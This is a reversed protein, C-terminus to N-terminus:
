DAGYPHWGHQRWRGDPRAARVDRLHAGLFSAELESNRAGNFEYLRDRHAGDRAVEDWGTVTYVARIIDNSIVFVPLNPVARSREGARWAHRAAEYREAETSDADAAGHSVVVACPRPLPPAPRASYRLVLEEVRNMPYETSTHGGAINTLGAGPGGRLSLAIGDILAQEIAFAALDSNDAATIDHRVIWHEPSRGSDLIEQIRQNKASTTAHGDPTDAHSDDADIKELQGLASWLHHFVRSGRGKGVYFVGQDRPDVLAYVYVGMARAAEPPVRDLRAADGAAPAADQAVLLGVVADVVDSRIGFCGGNAFAFLDERAEDVSGWGRGADRARTVINVTEWFEANRM